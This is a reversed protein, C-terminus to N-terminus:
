SNARSSYEKFRSTSLDVLRAWTQNCCFSSYFCTFYKM